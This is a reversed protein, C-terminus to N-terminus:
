PTLGHHNANEGAGAASVSNLICTKEVPISGMSAADGNRGVAKLAGFQKWWCNERGPLRLWEQLAVKRGCIGDLMRYNIAENLHHPKVGDCNDLDAITPRRKGVRM